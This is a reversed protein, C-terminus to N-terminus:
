AGGGGSFSFSISRLAVFTEAAAISTLRARTAQLASTLIVLSPGIVIVRAPQPGVTLPPQSRGAGGRDARRRLRGRAGRRGDGSRRHGRRARRRCRRATDPRAGRARRDSRAGHGSRRDASWAPRDHPGAREGGARRGGKG